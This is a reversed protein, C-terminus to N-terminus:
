LSRLMHVVVLAFIVYSNWYNSSSPSPGAAENLLKATVAYARGADSPYRTALVM